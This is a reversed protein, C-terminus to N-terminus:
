ATEVRCLPQGFEVPMGDEILVEVVTGDVACVVDNLLKMSEIAGVVQGVRVHSGIKCIGDTTHFIGVMPSLVVQRPDVVEEAAASASEHHEARKPRHAPKPKVGKRIHVSVDGRRVTLEQTRSGELVGILQEIKEIDM